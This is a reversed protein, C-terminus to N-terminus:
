GRLLDMSVHFRAPVFSNPLYALAQALTNGLDVCAEPSQGTSYTYQWVPLFSYLVGEENLPKVEYHSDDQIMAVLAM